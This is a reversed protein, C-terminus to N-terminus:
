NGSSNDTVASTWLTSPRRRSRQRMSRLSPRTTTLANGITCRDLRKYDELFTAYSPEVALRKSTCAEDRYGVYLRRAEEPNLGRQFFAFDCVACYRRVTEIQDLRCRLQMFPVISATADITEGRCLPCRTRQM